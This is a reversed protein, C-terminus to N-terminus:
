DDILETGFYTLWLFEISLLLHGHFGILSENYNGNFFVKYVRMEYCVVYSLALFIILGSITLLRSEFSIDAGKKIAISYLALSGFIPTLAAFLFSTYSADIHIPRDFHRSFSLSAEVWFSGAIVLTGWMSLLFLSSSIRLGSGNRYAELLSYFASLGMVIVLFTLGWVGLANLYSPAAVVDLIPMILISLAIITFLVILKYQNSDPIGDKAWRRWGEALAVLAGFNAISFGIPVLTRIPQYYVLVGITTYQSPSHTWAGFQGDPIVFGGIFVSFWLTGIGIMGSYYPTALIWDRLDGKSFKVLLYAAISLVAWILFTIVWMELIEPSEPDLTRAPSMCIDKTCGEIPGYDFLGLRM